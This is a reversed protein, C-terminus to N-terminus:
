ICTGALINELFSEGADVIDGSFILQVFTGSVAGFVAAYVWRDKNEYVLNIPSCGCHM